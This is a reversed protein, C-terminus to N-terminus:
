RNGNQNEAQLPAGNARAADAEMGDRGPARGPTEERRLRERRIRRLKRTAFIVAAIVFPGLFIFALFGIGLGPPLSPADALVIPM